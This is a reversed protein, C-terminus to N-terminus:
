VKRSSGVALQERYLTPTMNKHKKFAAYFTSKSNFGVEYGIAELKLGKTGAMLECAENIRYENIYAAFGKGVNDNLLQSLQHSSVNIKRAVDHLKLDPNKYLENELITKRLKETLPAVQDDSMKKNAYREVAQDENTSFITKNQKRHIFLPINLYLVFSFFLAGSICMGTFIGASAIPIVLNVLFVSLVASETPSLPEHSSIAKALVNRLTWGVLVIYVVWQKNIAQEIYTDWAHPYRQYPFLVGILLIALGWGWYTWKWQKPTQRIQTLAAQSFYYLSPGILLCSSIGLQLFLPPLQPYFHLCISRTIRLSLTLLLLGLFQAAVTKQQRFFLLYGSVLLGNFVGLASFFFLLHLGPNM